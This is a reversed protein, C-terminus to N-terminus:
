FFLWIKKKKNEPFIEFFVELLLELDKLDAEVFKPDEFNVYLIRQKPIKRELLKKILFYLYYTKGCRRPGLISITRKLPIELPVNLEREILDPLKEEQFDLIIQALAEKKVM